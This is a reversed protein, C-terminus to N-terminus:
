ALPLQGCLRVVREAAAPEAAVRAPGTVKALLALAPEPEFGDLDIVQAGELTSLRVRSTILVGCGPSGPLLPRVQRENAANDLVVLVRRTATLGRFLEAREDLDGPIAPGEVGFARVFRALVQAPDAPEAEIGRLNVYLQGDPFAERVRHAVHVALTTKGVGPRGCVTAVAPAAPGPDGPDGSDNPDGTLFRTLSASERVRGTFDRIDAPLRAPPAQGSAVPRRRAPVPAPPPDLAPDNVLISHELRRLAASPELGLQDALLRRGEQHVELAEAQRGLRYLAVMLHGRLRERLPHRAVLAAVRAVVDAHRGLALEAGILDEEATWRQEALRLAEEGVMSAHDAGAFPSGRWLGLARRLMRAGEEMRHGALAARGQGVLAEFRAADVEGPEAVLLYGPARHVIREDGLVRRLRHLQIQLSKDATRPPTPGWLGEVLLDTSVVAGPRCLLLALLRRRQPPLVIAREGDRVEVPGLVGFEM